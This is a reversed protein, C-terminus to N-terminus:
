CVELSLLFNYAFKVFYVRSNCEKCVWDDDKYKAIHVVGLEKCGM